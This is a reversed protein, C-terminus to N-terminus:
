ATREWFRVVFYPQINNHAGGGGTAQNVATANQNVATADATTIGYNTVTNSSTDPATTPGSLPGTTASHYRQTHSHANQTHTHADQVHTHSPMEATTLTHTKAGGTEKLTDFDTDNSDFGVPVRGAGIAAWTGFGLLTNPNTAVVSVFVSGVPWVASPDGGGVGPEGQPGQPGIEGQPGQPGIEGQPGTQGQPGEAGQAGASGAPGAEGQPGTAGANGPDGTDGKPGPPGAPGAPGEPGAPGMPGAPGAPGIDGQLGQVGAGADGVRATIAAEIEQEVEWAISRTFFSNRLGEIRLPAV